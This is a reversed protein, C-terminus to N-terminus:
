LEGTVSQSAPCFFRGGKQAEKQGTPAQEGGPLCPHHLAMADECAFPRTLEDLPHEWHIWFMVSSLLSLEQESVREAGRQWRGEAETSGPLFALHCQTLLVRAALQRPADKQKRVAAATRSGEHPRAAAEGHEWPAARAAGAARRVRTSGSGSCSGRCLRKASPVSSKILFHLALAVWCITLRLSQM